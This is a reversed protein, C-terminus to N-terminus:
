ELAHQVKTQCLEKADVEGLREDLMCIDLQVHRRVSDGLRLLVVGLELDILM